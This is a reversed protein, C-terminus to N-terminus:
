EQMSHRLAPRQNVRSGHRWMYWSYNITKSSLYLFLCKFRSNNLRVGHKGVRLLLSDKALFMKIVVLIFSSKCNNLVNLCEYKVVSFTVFGNQYYVKLIISTFLDSCTSIVPTLNLLKVVFYTRQIKIPCCDTFVSYDVKNHESEM